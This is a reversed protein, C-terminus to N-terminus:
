DGRMVTQWAGQRQKRYGEEEGAKPPYIDQWCNIISRELLKGADFGTRDMAELKALLKRQGFMTIPKKISRRMDLFAAWTEANLWDPLAVTIEKKPKPTTELRLSPTNKRERYQETDRDQGAKRKAVTGISEPPVQYTDYNCITLVNVGTGNVTGIM